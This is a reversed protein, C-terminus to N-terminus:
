YFCRCIFITRQQVKSSDSRKCNCNQTHTHTHTSYDTVLEELKINLESNALTALSLSWPLKSGSMLRVWELTGAKKKAAGLYKVVFCSQSLIYLVLNRRKNGSYDCESPKENSSFIHWGGAGLLVWGTCKRVETSTAFWGWEERDGSTVECIFAPLLRKVATM